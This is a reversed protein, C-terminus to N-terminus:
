DRTIKIIKYTIKGAPVNIEVVEGETHGLLGKGIPSSVSIKDELIDAESEPVLTYKIEEGSNQDSLFVTAGIYVKDDPIDIDDIITATTLKEKLEKIKIENMAQAEKAANYEANERLDGFDRAHSIAEAIEKRKVNILYELEKQLKEYGKKSLYSGQAM